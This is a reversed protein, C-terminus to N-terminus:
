FRWAIGARLPAVAVIGEPGEVGFLMRADAFATARSALPVILGGGGFVASARNTVPTPFTENVNPRSVGAAFGGTAFPGARRHGLPAFRLEVSGLLFTGGRFASVSGGARRIQSSLHTREASVFVSFRSASSMGAGAALSYGADTITPGASGYVEFSQGRVAPPCALLVACISVLVVRVASM